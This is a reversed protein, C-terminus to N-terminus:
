QEDVTKENALLSEKMREWNAIKEEVVKKRKIWINEKYIDGKKNALLRKHEFENMKKNLAVLLDECYEMGYSILNVSNLENSMDEPMWVSMGREDPILALNTLEYDNAEFSKRVVKGDKDTFDLSIMGEYVKEGLIQEDGCYEYGNLKYAKTVQEITTYKINM